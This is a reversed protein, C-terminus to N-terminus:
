HKYSSVFYTIVKRINDYYTWIFDKYNLSKNLIDTEFYRFRMMKYFIFKDFLTKYVTKCSLIHQTLSKMSVCESEYLKWAGFVESRNWRIDGPWKIKAKNRSM